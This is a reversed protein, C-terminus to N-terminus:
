WSYRLPHAMGRHTGIVLLSGKVIEQIVVESMITSGALPLNVGANGLQLWSVVNSASRLV